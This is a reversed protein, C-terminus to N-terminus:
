GDTNFYALDISIIQTVIYQILGFFLLIWFSVIPITYSMKFQPSNTIKYLVAVQVLSLLCFIATFTKFNDTVRGKYINNFYKSMYYSIFVLTGIMMLFPVFTKLMQMLTSSKNQLMSIMLQTFYMFYGANLISYGVIIGTLTQRNTDLFTTILTVLVGAAMLCLSYNYPNIYFSTKKVQNNQNNEM